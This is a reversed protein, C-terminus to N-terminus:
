ESQGQEKTLIDTAAREGNVESNKPGRGPDDRRLQAIYREMADAKAYQPLPETPPRM